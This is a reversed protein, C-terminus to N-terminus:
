DLVEADDWESDEIVVGLRPAAQIVNPGKVSESCRSDISTTSMVDDDEQYQWDDPLSDDEMAGVAPVTPDTRGNIDDGPTDESISQPVPPSPVKSTKTKSQRPKRMLQSVEQEGKARLSVERVLDIWQVEVRCGPCKGSTPIIAFGQGEDSLFRTALCQMHSATKCGDIPCVLTMRTEPGLTKSCIACHNIEDEALTFISKELHRQLKGYGVDIGEVGGKGLRERKRKGKAHTTMPIEDTQDSKEPRKVDLWAKTCSKITADVRENWNQWVQYVDECFFRVHLPWRAFSPVQLLLDLNSIKDLISPRPKALRKRVQGTNSLKRSKANPLTEELTEERKKRQEDTIKKTIHPNHWAWEFQLAAIKSPFGTVIVTM